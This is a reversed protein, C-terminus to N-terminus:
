DETDTLEQDRARCNESRVSIDSVELLLCAFALLIWQACELRFITIFTCSPFYFANTPYALVPQLPFVLCRDMMEKSLRGVAVEIRPLNM